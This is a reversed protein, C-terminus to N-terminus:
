AAHKRRKSLNETREGKFSIVSGRPPYETGDIRLPDIGWIKGRRLASMIKLDPSVRLSPRPNGQTLNAGKRNKTRAFVNVVSNAAPILETAHSIFPFASTKPPFHNIIVVQTVSVRGWLKASERFGSECDPNKIECDQFIVSM